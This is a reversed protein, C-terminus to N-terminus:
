IEALAHVLMYAHVDAAAAARGRTCTYIRVKNARLADGELEQDQGDIGAAAPDTYTYPQLCHACLCNFRANPQTQLHSLCGDVHSRASTTSTSSHEIEVGDINIDVEVERDIALQCHNFEFDVGSAARSAMQELSVACEMCTQMLSLIEWQKERGRARARSRTSVRTGALSCLQLVTQVRDLVAEHLQAAAKSSATPQAHLQLALGAPGIALGEVDPDGDPDIDPRRDRNSNSM